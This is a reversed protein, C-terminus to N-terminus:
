PGRFRTLYQSVSIIRQADRRRREAAATMGEAQTVRGAPSDIVVGPVTSPRAMTTRTSVVIPRVMARM